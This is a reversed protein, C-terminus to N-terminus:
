IRKKLQEYTTALFVGIIILLGGMILAPTPKEGLIPIAVLASSFPGLYQFFSTTFPTTKKIAFQLLFFMLASSFIGLGIVSIMGTSTLHDTLVPRITLEFPVIFLLIIVTQAFSFFSTTVPSYKNTLNKSFVMYLAWSFVALLNLMNGLPTGFTLIEEKMVSQQILFSIGLFAIILGIIKNKTFREKLLYYSLVAVIIPVLTYFIQSIIATTFQIAISFIGVNLSFFLSKKSLELIDAKSLNLSNQRLYFPLLIIAAIIFRITTLTIPPIERTGLKIFVPTAGGILGAMVLAVIGLLM